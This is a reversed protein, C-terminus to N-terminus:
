EPELLSCVLSRAGLVLDRLDEDAPQDLVKKLRRHGYLDTLAKDALDHLAGQDETAQAAMRAAEGLLDERAALAAADFAPATSLALDKLWVRPLNAGPGSRALGERLRALVTQLAEPRRLIRDLDTHGTLQLRCFLATPAFIAGKGNGNNGGTEGTGNGAKSGNGGGGAGNVAGSAAARALTELKNLAAGELDDLTDVGEAELDLALKYWRVPALSVSRVRCAQGEVRVVACGHPGGENIHLGQLSGPYVVLPNECLVRGQHVHGLAWYDMGAGTLDSLTCPAYPAHGDAASGVSCHLVGIRVAGATDPGSFQSALGAFQAALNSKERPGTHSIGHVLALLEDDRRVTETQVQAGFVTVNAPWPVPNPGAALPDHNGHAIFVAIGAKGLRECMDRLAFRARLVGDEDDHIDGSLILFAAQQALCLQELRALATFSAEALLNGTQGFAEAAAADLGRFPAGLHLDAAHIFTFDAM